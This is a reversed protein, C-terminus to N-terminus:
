GAGIVDVDAAIAPASGIGHMHRVVQDRGVDPRVRESGIYGGKSRNRIVKAIVVHERALQGREAADM